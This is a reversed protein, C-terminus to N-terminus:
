KSENKNEPTRYVADLIAKAHIGIDTSTFNWGGKILKAHAVNIAAAVANDAYKNTM